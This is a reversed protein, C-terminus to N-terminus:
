RRTPKVCVDTAWNSGSSVNTVDEGTGCCFSSSSSSPSPFFFNYCVYVCQMHPASYTNYVIQSLAKVHTRHLRKAARRVGYSYLSLVLFLCAAAVAVVVIIHACIRWLGSLRPRLAAAECPSLSCSCGVCIVPSFLSRTLSLSYSWVANWQATRFVRSADVTSRVLM